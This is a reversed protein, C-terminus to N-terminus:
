LVSLIKDEAVFVVGIIFSRKGCPLTEIKVINSLKEMKTEKNM